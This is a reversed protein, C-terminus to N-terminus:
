YVIQDPLNNMVRFVRKNGMSDFPQVKSGPLSLDVKKSNSSPIAKGPLSALHVYSPVTSEGRFLPDGDGEQIL